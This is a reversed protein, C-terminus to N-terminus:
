KSPRFVLSRGFRRRFRRMLDVPSWAYELPTGVIIRGRREDARATAFQGPLLRRDLEDAIDVIMALRDIRPLDARTLLRAFRPLNSRGKGLRALTTAILAVERHTFGRLDAAAVITAAHMCRDYYNVSQGIDLLTAVHEATELLEADAGPETAALLMRVLRQRRDARQADWTEFHAALSAVSSRRVTATDPLQIGLEALAIGERLGHGSVVLTRTGLVEMATTVVVAGGTISDARDASLGPITRRRALQRSVLRNTVERVERRQLTYGDVRTIPHGASRLHVKAINRVTGGTGVISGDDPLAPVGANDLMRVVHDRLEALEATRPPDGHLFRDTTLLSGLPLTWWHMPRRAEFYALEMSGGGVDVVFGTEVPLGYVAGLLAFRAETDGDIVTVALGTEALIRAVVQDRNVANRIAATAVAVTRQAGAAAAIAQFDRVASIASAVAGNELRGRGDLQRALQLSLRGDALIELQGGPSLQLVVMRASNSGIDIVALPGTATM